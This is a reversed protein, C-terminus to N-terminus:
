PAHDRDNGLARDLHRRTMAGAWLAIPLDISGLLLFLWAREEASAGSLDARSVMLSTLGSWLALGGGLGAYRVAYPGRAARAVALHQRFALQALWLCMAIVLAIGILTLGAAHNFDRVRGWVLLLAAVAGCGFWTAFPLLRKM